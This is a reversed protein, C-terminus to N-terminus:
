EIEFYFFSLFSRFHQFLAMSVQVTSTTEMTFDGNNIATSSNLIHAMLLLNRRTERPTIRETTDELKKLFFHLEGLGIWLIEHNKM